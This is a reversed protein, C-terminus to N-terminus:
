AADEPIILPSYCDAVQKEIEKLRKAKADEFAKRAKEEDAALMQDKLLAQYRERESELWSVYEAKVKVRILAKDAEQVSEPKILWVGHNLPEHTISWTKSITYGATLKAAVLTLWDLELPASVLEMCDRTGSYKHMEVAIRHDYEAQDFKPPVGHVMTKEQKSM